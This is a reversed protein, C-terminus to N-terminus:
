VGKKRVIAQLEKCEINFLPMNNELDTIRNDIETTRQDIVFIAQLEKSFQPFPTSLRQEMEHFKNIYRATFIAGKQGTLKHAIFECGKKTIDYCPRIEGKADQYTSEVFFDVLAIKSEDLYSIYNRIDRLLEKHQKGVMEAVERSDLTVIKEKAILNNM